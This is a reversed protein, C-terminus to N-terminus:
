YYRLGNIILTIFGDKMTTNGYENKYYVVYYYVDSSVVKGKHTGDWGDDGRFMEIGMRDFIVVEYGKMFIDNIGDNDPTFIKPIFIEKKLTYEKEVRCGFEDEMRVTFISVTGSYENFSQGSIEGTANLFLGTPLSGNIITFAPLVANTTLQYSYDSNLKYEPLKDQSIYLSDGVTITVSDTVDPCPPRSATVYYQQTSIPSVTEADINWRVVGDYQLLSLAVKEGRCIIRDDMAIVEPPAVTTIIISDKTKCNQNSIAEVYFVTDTELVGTRLLADNGIIGSYDSNRYWVFTIEDPSSATIIAASGTCIDFDEKTIRPFPNIKVKLNDRSICGNASITEMYFITDSKLMNSEFVPTEAITNTYNADAYWGFIAADSSSIAATVIAGYCVATDNNKVLEPLAHLSIRISDRFICGNQSVAEIYFVTDTELAGTTFSPTKVITDTYDARAFWSYSYGNRLNEIKPTIKEHRCIATDSIGINHNEITFSANVTDVIGYENKIIMSLKHTGESLKGNWEPIDEMDTKEVNDIIWRIHGQKPHMTYEGSRVTISDGCFIHGDQDHNHIDNVYFSANLRKLASGALYYYSEYKGLGYGLIALGSPNKFGYSLNANTLPMSYYSYGSSHTTWSGGSLSTYEGNGISIETLNRSDASTIIMIHHEILVSSGSAIFPAVIAENVFQDVAPIWAMAPDGNSHDLGPTDLGMLYSAVAVPRDSEIYCGAKNRSIELEVYEGMNLNLSGSIITGGSQTVTTNDQAAYIRLREIGRITVPAMFSTGWLSEPSLQEYLCDCAMDGVYTCPNTTFYAVPKNTTVHRMIDYSFYYSLVDGRDLIALLVGNEYVSTNNEVAIVAYGDENLFYSLHHYSTGYAEVPLVGTADTTREMLNIAYVSINEDSEIHLSKLTVGTVDSYVADKEATSLDRTYVSGAAISVTETYGTETFTLKVKSAKTAVIRIQLSLEDDDSPVDYNKGFAVWFDKGQTTQGHAYGSLLIIFFIAYIHKKIGYAGHRYSTNYAKRM